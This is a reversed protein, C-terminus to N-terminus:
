HYARGLVFAIINPHLPTSHVGMFIIANFPTSLVNRCLRLM